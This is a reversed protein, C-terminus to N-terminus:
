RHLLLIESFYFSNRLGVWYFYNDREEETLGSVYSNIIISNNYITWNDHENQFSFSILCLLLIAYFRKEASM